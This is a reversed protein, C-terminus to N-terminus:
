CRFLSAYMLRDTRTSGQEMQMADSVRLSIADLLVISLDSSTVALIGGDRSVCAATIPKKSVRKKSKIELTYPDMQCVFGSGNVQNVIAFASEKCYGRGYRYARFSVKNKKDVAAPSLSQIIKGANRGRLNILKISDRLVCVLKDKELAIDVDMVEDGVNVPDFSPELDPYKLLHVTGETTGAALLTGDYSFRVVKQYEEPNASKM